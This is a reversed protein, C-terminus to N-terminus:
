DLYKEMQPGTIKVCHGYPDTHMISRLSRSLKFAKGAKDVRNSYEKFVTAVLKQSSDGRVVLIPKNNVTLDDLNQLQDGEILSFTTTANRVTAEPM